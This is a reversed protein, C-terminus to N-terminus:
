KRNKRNAKMSKGNSISEILNQLKNKGSNTNIKIAYQVMILVVIHEMFKM